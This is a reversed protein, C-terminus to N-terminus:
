DILASTVQRLPNNKVFPSIPTNNTDKRNKVRTPTYTPTHTYIRVCVSVSCLHPGQFPAWPHTHSVQLAQPIWIFEIKAYIYEYIHVFSVRTYM